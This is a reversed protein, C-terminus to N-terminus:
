CDMLSFNAQCTLPRKIERAYEMEHCHFNSMNEIIQDKQYCFICRNIPEILVTTETTAIITLVLSMEVAHPLIAIISEAVFSSKHLMCCPMFSKIGETSFFELTESTYGTSPGITFEVSDM